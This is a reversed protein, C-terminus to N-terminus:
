VVAVGVVVEAEVVINAESIEEGPETLTVRVDFTLRVQLLPPPNVEFASVNVILGGSVRIGDV